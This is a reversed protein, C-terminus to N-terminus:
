LLLSFQVKRIDDPTGEAEMTNVKEEKLTSSLQSLNLTYSPTLADPTKSPVNLPSEIGLSM